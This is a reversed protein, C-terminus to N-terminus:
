GPTPPKNALDVLSLQREILDPPPHLMLSAYKSGQWVYTISNKPLFYNVADLM